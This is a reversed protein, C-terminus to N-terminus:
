PRPLLGLDIWLQATRTEVPVGEIEVARKFFIAGQTEGRWNSVQNFFADELAFREPAGSHRSTLHGAQVAPLESLHSTGYWKGTQRNVLFGLPHNPNDLIKKLERRLFTQRSPAEAGRTLSYGIIGKGSEVVKGTPTAPSKMTRPARYSPRLTFASGAESVATAGLGIAMSWDEIKSLSETQLTARAAYQGSLSAHYPANTIPRFVYEEALAVPTALAWLAYLGARALWSNYPNNAEMLADEKATYAFGHPVRLSHDFEPLTHRGSSSEPRKRQRDREWQELMTTAWNEDRSVGRSRDVDFIRAERPRGFSARTAIWSEDKASVTESSRAGTGNPVDGDRPTVRADRGRHPRKTADRRSAPPTSESNTYYHWRETPLRKFGYEQAHKDLWNKVQPNKDLWRRDFDIAEGRQHKSYGPAAIHYRGVYEAFKEPDIKETPIDQGIHAKYRKIRARFKDNDVYNRYQREVTRYTNSLRPTTKLEREMADLMRQAREVATKEMKFSRPRGRRDYANVKGLRKEPLSDVFKRRKAARQVHKLYSETKLRKEAETLGELPLRDYGYPNKPGYRTGTKGEPKSRDDRTGRGHEKTKPRPHRTEARSGTNPGPFLYWPDDSTLIRVGPKGSPADSDPREGTGTTPGADREATKTPVHRKPAGTDSKPSVDETAATADGSDDDGKKADTPVGLDTPRGASEDRTPSGTDTSRAATDATGMDTSADPASSDVERVGADLVDTDGGSSRFDEPVGADSGLAGSDAVRIDADTPSDMRNSRSEAPDPLVGFEGQALQNPSSAVDATPEEPSEETREREDSPAQEDDGETGLEGQSLRNPSPPVEQIDQSDKGEGSDSEIKARIDGESPDYEGPGGGVGGSMM